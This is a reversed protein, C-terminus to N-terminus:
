TFVVTTVILAFVTWYIWRAHLDIRRALPGRDSQHLRSTTVSEALALFVLVVSGLIFKDADTLYSIRPLLRNLSLMFAILTFVSATSVGMQPGFDKPNIWFVVSAMAVILTLPVFVKWLYYGFLRKARLSFATFTFERGFAEGRVLHPADEVDILTWGAIAADPARGTTEADGKLVLESPGYPSVLRFPLMQEDSPFDHLEFPSSLEGYYRQQYEVNGQEDVKVIDPGRPRLLRQNIISIGPHWVEDLRLICDELSSGRSAAALRPDTWRVTIAFDATFSETAENIKVIDVVFVGVKIVTPPGDDDPRVAAMARPVRCESEETPVPAQGWTQAGNTLVALWTLTWARRFTRLRQGM